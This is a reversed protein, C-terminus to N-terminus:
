INVSTCDIHDYFDDLGDTLFFILIFCVLQLTQFPFPFAFYSNFLSM